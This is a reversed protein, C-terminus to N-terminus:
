RLENNSAKRKRSESLCNEESETTFMMKIMRAYFTNFMPMLSMDRAAIENRILDLADTIEPHKTKTYTDQMGSYFEKRPPEYSPLMSDKSKSESRSRSIRLSTPDYETDSSISQVEAPTGTGNASQNVPSFPGDIVTTNYGILPESANANALM